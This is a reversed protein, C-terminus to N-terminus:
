NRGICSGRSCAGIYYDTVGDHSRLRYSDKVESEEGCLICITAANLYRMLQRPVEDDDNELRRHAALTLSLLDPIVWTNDPHTIHGFPPETDAKNLVRIKKYPTYSEQDSGNRSDFGFVALIPLYISEHKHM